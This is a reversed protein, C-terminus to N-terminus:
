AVSLSISSVMPSFRINCHGNYSRRFKMMLQGAGQNIAYVQSETRYKSLLEELRQMEAYAASIAKQAQAESSSAAILDVVTDLLIQSQRYTKVHAVFVRQYFLLGLVV